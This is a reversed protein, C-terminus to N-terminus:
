HLGLIRYRGGPKGALGIVAAWEDDIAAVRKLIKVADSHVSNKVVEDKNLGHSGAELLAQVVNYQPDTLAPKEQGSVFVPKGPGNLTVPPPVPPNPTQGPPADAALLDLLAASATFPDMPLESVYAGAKLLRIAEQEAEYAAGDWEALRQENSMTRDREAIAKSIAARESVSKKAGPSFGVAAEQKERVLRRVIVGTPIFQTARLITGAPRAWAAHFLLWLWNHASAYLDSTDVGNLGPSRDLGISRVLWFADNFLCDADVRLRQTRNQDASKERPKAKKGFKFFRGLQSQEREYISYYFLHWSGIHIKVSPTFGCLGFTHGYEESFDGFGIGTEHSVVCRIDSYSNAARRMRRALHRLSALPIRDL